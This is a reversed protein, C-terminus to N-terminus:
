ARLLARSYGAGLRRARWREELEVVAENLEQLSRVFEENTNKLVELKRSIEAFSKSTLDVREKLERPKPGELGERARLDVLGM